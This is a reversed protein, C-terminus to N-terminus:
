IRFVDDELQSLIKVANDGYLDYMKYAVANYNSKFYCEIITELTDSSSIHPHLEIEEIYYFLRQYSNPEQIGTIQFTLWETLVENLGVLPLKEDPIAIGEVWQKSFRKIKIKNRSLRHIFEHVLVQECFASERIYIYGTKTDCKGRAKGPAIDSFENICKQDPVISVKYRMDPIREFNRIYKSYDNKIKSYYKSNIRQLEAQYNM